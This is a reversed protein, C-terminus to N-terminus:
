QKKESRVQNPQLDGPITDEVLEVVQFDSNSVYLDNSLRALIELPTTNSLVDCCILHPLLTPTPLFCSSLVHVSDVVSWLARVSQARHYVNGHLTVACYRRKRHACMIMSHRLM